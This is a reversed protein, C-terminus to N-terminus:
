CSLSSRVAELRLRQLKNGLEKGSLGQQQLDAVSVSSIAEVALKLNKETHLMFEPWIAHASQLFQEWRKPQQEARLDTVLKLCSEPDASAALEVDKAYVALADLLKAHDAPLRLTEKLENAGGAQYLAVIVRVMSSETAAAARKMRAIAQTIDSVPFNMAQLAGCEQLVEFFRWPARGTMADQLEQWLREPKITALEGSSVMQQLLGMTEADVSFGLRAAFRAARLVRLPDEIFAPSIHRLRKQALDKQGDLPDILADDEDRAMANITFDRRLLDQELTVDPAADVAFGKYGSGSKTEKRALAYEEGTEPHLFVPFEADARRFGQALMQEESGGVVLWDREKPPIGLLGDRVAGGVLYTKV